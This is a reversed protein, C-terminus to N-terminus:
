KSKPFIGYVNDHIFYIDTNLFTMRSRQQGRRLGKVGELLSRRDSTLFFPVFSLSLCQM